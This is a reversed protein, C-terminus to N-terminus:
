DFWNTGLHTMLLPNHDSTQHAKAFEEDGRSCINWSSLTDALSGHWTTRHGGGEQLQSGCQKRSCSETDQPESIKRVPFSLPSQQHQKLPNAIGEKRLFVLLENRQYFNFPVSNMKDTPHWDNRYHERRKIRKWKSVQGTPKLARNVVQLGKRGQIWNEKPGRQRQPLQKKPGDGKGRTPCPAVPLWPAPPVLAARSGHEFRGRHLLPSGRGLGTASQYCFLSTLSSM